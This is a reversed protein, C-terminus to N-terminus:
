NIEVSGLIRQKNKEQPDRGYLVINEIEFEWSLNRYLKNISRFIERTKINKNKVRALTLHPDFNKKTIKSHNKFIEVLKTHLNKISKCITADLSIVDYNKNEFYRIGSIEVRCNKLTGAEKKVFDEVEHIFGISQKGMFLITIHPRKVKTVRVNKDIKSVEDLLAKYEKYFKQPLPIGIFFNNYTKM